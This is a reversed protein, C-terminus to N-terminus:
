TIVLEIILLKINLKYIININNNNNYICRIPSIEARLVVNYGITSYSSIRVDGLVSANEAIYSDSIQPFVQNISSIKRHRSFVQIYAIDDSFRSGVADIRAGTESIIRGIYYKSYNIFKSILNPFQTMSM